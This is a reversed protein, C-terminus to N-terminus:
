LRKKPTIPPVINVLSDFECRGQQYATALNSGKKLGFIKRTKVWIHLEGQFYKGIFNALLIQSQIWGLTKTPRDGRGSFYFIFDEPQTAQEIYEMNKLYSLIEILQDDTYRNEFHSHDHRNPKPCDQAPETTNDVTSAATATADITNTGEISQYDARKYSEKIDKLIQECYEVAQKVNNYRIIRFSHIDNRQLSEENLWSGIIEPHYQHYNSIITQLKTLTPRLITIYFRRDVDYYLGRSVGEEFGTRKAIIENRYRRIIVKNRKVQGETYKPSKLLNIFEDIKNIANKM